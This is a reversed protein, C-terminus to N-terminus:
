PKVFVTVTATKIRYITGSTRFYEFAVEAQGVAKGKVSFNLMSPQDFFYSGGEPALLWGVQQIAVLNLHKSRKKNVQWKYGARPNGPLKVLIIKGVQTEVSEPIDDKATAPQVSALMVFAALIRSLSRM